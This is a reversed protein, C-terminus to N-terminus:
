EQARERVASAYAEDFWAVRTEHRYCAPHPRTQNADRQLEERITRDEGLVRISRSKTFPRVFRQVQHMLRHRPAPEGSAWRHRKILLRTQRRDFALPVHHM